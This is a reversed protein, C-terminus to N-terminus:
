SVAVDTKTTGNIMPSNTVWTGPGLLIVTGAQTLHEPGGASDGAARANSGPVGLLKMRGPPSPRSSNITSVLNKFFCITKVPSSIHCELSEM